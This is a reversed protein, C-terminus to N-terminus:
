LSHSEKELDDTDNNGEDQRALASDEVRRRSVFSKSFSYFIAILMAFAWSCGV